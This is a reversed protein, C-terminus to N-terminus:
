IYFIYFRYIILDKLPCLHVMRKYINSYEKNGSQLPTYVCVYM